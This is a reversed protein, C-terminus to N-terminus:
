EPIAACALAIVLASLAAVAAVKDTARKSDCALLADPLLETLAIWLMTAAAFGVFAHALSGLYGALGFALAAFPAQPAAAALAYLICEAAPRDRGRLVMATALGEPVNHALIALTAVRGAGLSRAYAAGLAVGEAAAHSALAFALAAFSSTRGAGHDVNSLVYPAAASAAVGVVFGAACNAMSDRAADVALAIAISAVAGGAAANAYKALSGSADLVICPLAGVGAFSAALAAEGLVLLCTADASASFFPALFAPAVCAAPGDAPADYVVRPAAPARPAWEMSGSSAGGGGFSDAHQFKELVHGIVYAALAAAGGNVVMGLASAFTPQATLRAKAAGLVVLTFVTVVCSAGFMLEPTPAASLSVVAYYAVLPTAGFLAFSGATTVGKRAALSPGGGGSEGGGDGGGLWDDNPILQLRTMMTHAVLVDDVTALADVCKAADGRKLGAKEYAAKLLATKEKRGGPAILEDSERDRESSVFEDEARESLYDGIGMSLADAILNAAGMLLVLGPHARAGAVTAVIAFTTIIGDLGGFVLSKVYHGGDGM